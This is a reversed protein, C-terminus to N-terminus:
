ESHPRADLLRQVLNGVFTAGANEDDTSAQAPPAAPPSEIDIPFTEFPQNFMWGRGLGILYISNPFRSPEEGLVHDLAMRAAHAAIVAVDADDAILPPGEGAAAEYSRAAIPWTVNRQACWSLIGARMSQPDPDLGPRHRAILGGYGGGFIELWVLPKATPTVVSALLNFVTPNATADVILDCAAIADLAMSASGSSEQASMRLRRVDASVATNVLKLRAALADAKHAGVDRWDLENRVLNGPLMLDDDILVFCGIGARALSAAIKSGASGCGVVAVRKTVLAGYGAALRVSDESPVSITDFRVIEDKPMDWWWRLQPHGPGILIIFEPVIKQEESWAQLDLDYARLGERLATFTEAALASLDDGLRIIVGERAFGLEAPVSKDVWETESFQAKGVTVMLSRPQSVSRLTARCIAGPAMSNAAAAFQPTVIFRFWASRLDQGLTAEHRSPVAQRRAAESAQGGPLLTHASRLLDAGTLESVWNDPGYELCLEGAAGYQHESWRERVDGRPWVSPPTHPFLEPYRLSIPYVRGDALLDADVCLRVSTDLRWAVNQLWAVEEALAAIARREHEVRATDKLFWIV